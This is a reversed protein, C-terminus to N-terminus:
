RDTVEGVSSEDSSLALATSPPSLLGRNGVFVSIGNICKRLHRSQQNAMVVM